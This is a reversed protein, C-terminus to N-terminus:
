SLKSKTAMSRAPAGRREKPCGASPAGGTGISCDSAFRGRGGLSASCTLAIRSGRRVVRGTAGAVGGVAAMSTGRMPSLQSHATLGMRGVVSSGCM